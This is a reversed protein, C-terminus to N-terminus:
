KKNKQVEPVIIEGNKKTDNEHIEFSLNDKVDSIDLDKSSGNVIEIKMKKEDNEEEM